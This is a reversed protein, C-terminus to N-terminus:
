SKLESLRCYISVATYKEWPDLREGYRGVTAANVLRTAQTRPVAKRSGGVRARSTM